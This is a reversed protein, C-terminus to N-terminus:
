FSRRKVFRTPSVVIYYFRSIVASVTRKSINVPRSPLPAPWSPSVTRWMRLMFYGTLHASRIRFLRIHFAGYWKPFVVLELKHRPDRGALRPMSIKRSSYIFQVPWPSSGPIRSVDKITHVKQSSSVCLSCHQMSHPFTQFISRKTVDKIM